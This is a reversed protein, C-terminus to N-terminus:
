LNYFCIKNNKSVSYCIENDKTQIISYCSGDTQISYDKKYKLNDKVYFIISSDDSCSVLTKNKLEIIKWITNTHYNLTQIIEYNNDKINFLKITKDSSCSALEGSSLQIICSVYSKHEKIILDPKYSVKNYIIISNDASGSVLRGDNMLALCYVSGTHNNLTHIPIKIKIDFNNYLEYNIKTEEIIIIKGLTKITNLFKNIEDESLSFDIKTNKNLKNKNIMEDM